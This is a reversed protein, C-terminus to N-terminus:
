LFSKLEYYSKRVPFFGYKEWVKIKTTIWSNNFGFNEVWKNLNKRGYMRIMFGKTSKMEQLTCNFNFEKLIDFVQNALIRSKTYFEM